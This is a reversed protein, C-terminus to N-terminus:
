KSDEKAWEPSILEIRWVPGGEYLPGESKLFTPAEGELVWVHIDPPAKGILPAVIGAAGGISIKVAFRTAKRSSGGVLFADEGDRAIELKTLRPKPTTVLLSMTPASGDAPLNKAMISIMGNALDAPLKEHSSETKEKGKEDWSHVTVEGSTGNIFLDTQTKFAPGKQSLRYELMRFRRKQSYSVREDHVSGDKFHLIVRSTVREGTSDQIVDGVALTENELTRLVLFGHTVGESHRVALSQAKLPGAGFLGLCMTLHGLARPWGRFVTSWGAVRHRDNM